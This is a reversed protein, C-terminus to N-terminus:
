LKAHSCRIIGLCSLCLSLEESSNNWQTSGPCYPLNVVQKLFLCSSYLDSGTPKVEVRPHPVLSLPTPIYVSFLIASLFFSLIAASLRLVNFFNLIGCICLWLPFELIADWYCLSFNFSVSSYYKDVCCCHFFVWYIPSFFICTGSCRHNLSWSFEPHLL